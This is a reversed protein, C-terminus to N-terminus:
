RMMDPLLMVIKPFLTVLATTLCMLLFFPLAAKAITLIDEKTLGSIVFLNFGVPPTIQALEIMLVLYIGFWVPDFGVVQVLPLVIPTTMVIMSFGDLLCGLVLYMLTLIFILMYASLGLHTVYLTLERTIGLYGITVSLYGAGMVILMIMCSTKISGKLSELFAQRNMSRTLVAFVLAGVVGVVGAETPTAWGKYLSGLVVLILLAVPAIEKLGLLRRKWTYHDSGAPALDKQLVCRVVIYSSFLGAILMGPIIGAIFLKGISVDGIIGYVLMMMSPPILFGLTGAGALSGISLPGNYGRNKLEPVTIQGVTATTAASSGSVAAFFTCAIINVHLLRGPIADMWPALGSFLNQSIRSRFLIEGMWVFMPLALMASGSTNNWVNNSMILGFPVDTFLLLGSLGILFLSIGIWVTGGLFVTLLIFLTLSVTALNL